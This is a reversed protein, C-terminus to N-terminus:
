YFSILLQITGGMSSEMDWWDFMYPVIGQMQKMIKKQPPNNYVCSSVQNKM